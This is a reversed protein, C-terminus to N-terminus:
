GPCDVAALLGPRRKAQIAADKDFFLHCECHGQNAIEDKFTNCPCVPDTKPDLPYHQKCPCFYKGSELKMKSLHEVLRNLAKVDPNLQYGFRQAIKNLYSLTDDFSDNM